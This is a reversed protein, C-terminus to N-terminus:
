GDYPYWDPAYYDGLYEACAQELAYEDMFDYGDLKTGHIVAHCCWCLTILNM